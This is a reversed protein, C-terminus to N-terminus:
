RKSKPAFIEKGGVSMFREKARPFVVDNSKWPWGGFQTRDFDQFAKRLEENTNMVMPGSSRIPEGIPRGQLILFACKNKGSSSSSRSRDSDRISEQSQSLKTCKVTFSQSADLECGTRKQIKERGNIMMEEGEVFYLYRNAESEIRAKPVRVEERSKEAYMEVYFVGVDNAEDSAWSNKPTASLNSNVKVDGFQGVWVVIEYEKGKKRIKKVDDKWHMVFDPESMKKWSPLNLWIQFFRLPNEEDANVLPFMEAHQIGSGATMWQLDGKGYRGADGISDTHDIIGDLTATITEFGRHPHQPFGPVKEGHYMRYPANPNFDAGNGRRPAEMKGNGAPYQDKHYVCFLFPDQTHMPGDSLRDIGVVVKDNSNESSSMTTVVVPIKTTTRSLTKRRILFSLASTRTALM